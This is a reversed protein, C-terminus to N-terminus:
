VETYEVQLAFNAQGTLGSHTFMAGNTTGVPIAFGKETGNNTFDYIIPSVPTILGTAIPTPITLVIQSATTTVGVVTFAGTRAVGSFAADSADRQLSAGSVATGAATAAVTNRNVTLTAFGTATATGPSYILRKIRITKAAGSEIVMVNTAATAAVGTVSVTYTPEFSNNVGANQAVPIIKLVGYANGSTFATCHVRVNTYKSLDFEYAFSNPLAATGTASLSAVTAGGAIPQISLANWTTANDQSGEVAITMTGTVADLLLIGKVSGKAQVALTRVGGTSVQGNAIGVSETTSAATLGFPSQTQGAIEVNPVVRLTGITNSASGATLHVRLIPYGYTKGKWLSGAVPTFAAVGNYQQSTATTDVRSLPIITFLVNDFSGELQMTPTTSIAVISLYVDADKAPVFVTKGNTGDTVAAAGTGVSFQSFTEGAGVTAVAGTSELLSVRTFNNIDAGGVPVPNATRAAGIAVNGGASPVGAVGGNVVASGGYQAENVSQNATLAGTVTVNLNAATGQAVVTQTVSLDSPSISSVAQISGGTITTAIRLRLYRFTCAGTYIFASASATIATVIPVPVALSQNFVPIAQFNASAASDNTGEFIFTGGTGTSVVQIAFSRYAVVDTANAGSAAPLINNVVATQAAAGTIYLDNVDENALAVSFSSAAAQQGLTSPFLTSTIAVATQDSAITVPQSNAMVATGNPNITFITITAGTADKVQISPQAM